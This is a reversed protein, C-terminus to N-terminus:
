RRVGRLFEPRVYTCLKWRYSSEFGAGVFDETMSAYPKQSAYVDVKKTLPNRHFRLPLASEDDGRETAFQADMPVTFFDADAVSSILDQNMCMIYRETCGRSKLGDFQVIQQAETNTLFQTQVDYVMPKRDNISESAAPDLYLRVDRVKVNPEWDKLKTCTFEQWDRAVRLVLECDTTLRHAEDGAFLLVREYRVHRSSHRFAKDIALNPDVVLAGQDYDAQDARDELFNRVFSCLVNYKPYHLKEEGGCRLTM